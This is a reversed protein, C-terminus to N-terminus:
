IQASLSRTSSFGILKDTESWNRNAIPSGVVIDEQGTHRHLLTKFAALLTMFLTAGERRSLAKLAEISAVPVLFSQRAGLFTQAAPRPHDAPLQLMTSGALQRKWYDLQQELVTGQLWQRQWHAFDAYQISLPALTSPQGSSYSQYLHGLERVLVGLSWGDFIIHHLALLLVFEDGKLRLLTM